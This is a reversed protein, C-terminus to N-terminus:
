ANKFWPLSVTDRTAAYHLATNGENDKIAVDAGQEPHLLWETVKAHRRHCALQLLTRPGWGDRGQLTTCGYEHFPISKVFRAWDIHENVKARFVSGQYQYHVRRVYQLTDLFGDWCACSLCFAGSNLDKEYTIFRLWDMEKNVLAFRLADRVDFHQYIM